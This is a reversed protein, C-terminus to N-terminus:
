SPKKNTTFHSKYTHGTTESNIMSPCKSRKPGSLDSKANRILQVFGNATLQNAVNIQESWGPEVCNLPVTTLQQSPRLKPLNQISNLHTMATQVRITTLHSNTM